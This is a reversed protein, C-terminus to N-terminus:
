ATTKGLIQQMLAQALPSKEDALTACITIHDSQKVVLHQKVTAPWQTQLLASQEHFATSELEGVAVLGVCDKPPSFFAPSLADIEAGALKLDKSIFPAKSLPALDFLGSLSAFSKVLGTFEGGTIQHWDACAMMAALHGGASHGAVCIQKPDFCLLESRKALWSIAQTIQLTLERLSINPILDYNVISVNIGARVFSPAIFSFETKDRSRWYGGHIFVLLPKPLENGSLAAPFFDLRQLASIGYALDLLCATRGRTAASDASWKAFTADAHSLGLRANYQKDLDSTALPTLKANKLHMM